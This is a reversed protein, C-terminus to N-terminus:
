HYKYVLFRATKMYSTALMKGDPTPDSFAISEKPLVSGFMFYNRLCELLKTAIKKRREQSAVWIRSVGCVAPEPTTECCWARQQEFIQQEESSRQGTGGGDAIVRYGKSIEEAILCGAVKKETTIYLFVKSTTKCAVEGGQLFGLEQDVLQRIEEVKKIHYKPDDHLVMIVRGDDFEQLLREKKWGPFKISNLYKRHFKDHSAEDEPHAATYVMGCMECSTAGFRKQGLDMTMQEMGDNDAMKKMINLKRQQIPTSTAPSLSSSGLTKNTSPSIPPTMFVPLIVATKRPSVKKALQSAVSEPTEPEFGELFNYRDESKKDDKTTEDQSANNLSSRSSKRPSPQIGEEPTLCESEEKLRMSRKKGVSRPSPKVDEDTGIMRETRTNEADDVFQIDLKKSAGKQMAPQEEETDVALSSGEHNGRNAGTTQQTSNTTLKKAAKRNNKMGQIYLKVAKKVGKRPSKRPTRKGPSRKKPSRNRQKKSPSSKDSTSSEKRNRSPLKERREAAKETSKAPKAKTKQVTNSTQKPRRHIGKNSVHVATYTPIKRTKKISKETEAPPKSLLTEGLEARRRQRELPTQYQGLGKPSYFCKASFAPPIDAELSTEASRLRKRPSVGPSSGALVDSVHLTRKRSTRANNLSTMTCQDSASQVGLM